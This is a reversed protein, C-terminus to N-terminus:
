YSALLACSRLRDIVVVFVNRVRIAFCYIVPVGARGMSNRTEVVNGTHTWGPDPQHFSSLALLAILGIFFCLLGAAERVRRSMQGFALKRLLLEEARDRSDNAAATNSARAAKSARGGAAASGRTRTATARSNAKKKSAAKKRKPAAARKKTAQAL